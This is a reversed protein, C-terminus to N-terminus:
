AAIDEKHAKRWAQYRKRANNLVQEESLLNGQLAEAQAERIAAKTKEDIPQKELEYDRIVEM